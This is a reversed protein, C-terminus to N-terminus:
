ETIVIEKGDPKRKQGDATVALCQNSDHYRCNIIKEKEVNFDNKAVPCNDDKGCLLLKMNCFNTSYDIYSMSQSESCGSVECSQSGENGTEKIKLSFNIFDTYKKNGTLRKLKILGTTGDNDRFSYFGRNHADYWGMKGEVRARIEERVVECPASVTFEMQCKANLFWAQSGPCIDEAWASPLGFIVPVLKM